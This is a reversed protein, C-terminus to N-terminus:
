DADNTRQEMVFHYDTEEIDVFGFRQYLKRAPNVKLVKLRVPLRATTARAIAQKIFHSGIGRNQYEPLVHLSELWITDDRRYIGVTGVEVGEEVIISIDTPRYHTRHFEQQWKEDWGWTQEVYLGLVEKKISYVLDSDEPTAQRLTVQSGNSDM